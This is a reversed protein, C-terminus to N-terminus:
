ATCAEELDQIRLELDNVRLELLVGKLQAELEARFQANQQDFDDLYQATVKARESESLGALEGNFQELCEERFENRQRDFGQMYQEITTDAQEHTM